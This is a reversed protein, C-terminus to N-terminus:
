YSPFHDTTGVVVRATFSYISLKRKSKNDPYWTKNDPYGLKILNSINYIYIDLHIISIYGTYIQYLLYTDLLYTNPYIYETIDIYIYLFLYINPYIYLYLTLLVQYM